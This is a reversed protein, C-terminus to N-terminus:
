LIFIDLIRNTEWGDALHAVDRVSCLLVLSCCPVGPFVLILEFTHKHAVDRLTRLHQGHLGLRTFRKQILIHDLANTKLWHKGVGNFM